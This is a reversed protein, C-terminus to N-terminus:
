NSMKGAKRGLCSVEPEGSTEKNIKM